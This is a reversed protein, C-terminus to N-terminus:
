PAERARGVRVRGEFRAGSRSASLLQAPAGDAELGAQLQQLAEVSGAELLLELYGRAQQFRLGVLRPRAEPSMRTLVVGVEGLLAAFRPAEPAARRAPQLAQAELARGLHPARALEPYHTALLVRAEARMTQAQQAHWLGLALAPAAILVPLLSASALLVTRSRRRALRHVPPEFRGQLLDVAARGADPWALAHFFAAASVDGDCIDIAQGQEEAWRAAVSPPGAFGPVGPACLLVREGDRFSCATSRGQALLEHDVWASAVPLGADALQALTAALRQANIAVARRVGASGTAALVVHVAEIEELLYDEMLYPAVLAARAETGPPMHLDLMLIDEGPLVLAVTGPMLQDHRAAIVTLTDSGCRADEGEALYAWDWPSGADLAALRTRPRLLLAPAIVAVPAQLAHLAARVRRLM